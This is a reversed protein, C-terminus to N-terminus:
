VIGAIELETPWYNKEAATLLRFLFMILESDNRSPWKSKDLDKNPAKVHFVMAGFGFEKSADLDIWLTRNPDFYVLISPQSLAQKLM